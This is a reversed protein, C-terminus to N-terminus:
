STKPQGDGNGSLRPGGRQAILAVALCAAAAWGGCAVATRLKKRWALQQRRLILASRIDAWSEDPAAVTPASALLLASTTECADHVWRRMAADAPGSAPPSTLVGTLAAERQEDISPM